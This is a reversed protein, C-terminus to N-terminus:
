IFCPLDLADLYNGDEIIEKIKWIVVVMIYTDQTCYASLAKHYKEREKKTLEGSILLSYYAQAKEGNNVLLDTYSISPAFIPGVTKISNKGRFNPHYVAMTKFMYNLDWLRETLELLADSLDPFLVALEEIRTREFAEYYVVISGEKELTKILYLALERRPDDGSIDLFESHELKKDELEKHISAQFVIQQNPSSNDHRPVAYNIAEFDLHFLPYQLNKLQEEVEPVNIMVKNRTVAEWQIKQKKSLLKNVDEKKFDKITNLKLKRFSKKRTHVNVFDEISDKENLSKFYNKFSSLLTHSITKISEEPEEKSSVINQFENLNNPISQYIENFKEVRKLNKKAYKTVKKSTSNDLGRQEMWISIDCNLSPFIRDTLFMNTVHLEGSKIYTPNLHQISAEKVVLGAKELVYKQYAVDTLYYQKNSKYANNSSKAEIINVITSSLKELVDVRVVLDLKDKQKICFAAEFIYKVSPDKMLEKTKEVAKNVELDHVLIGGLYYQYIHDNVLFGEDIKMQDVLSNDDVVDPKNFKLWLSRKSITGLVYNTKSLYQEKKKM